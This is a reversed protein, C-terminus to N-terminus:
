TGESQENGKGKSTNKIRLRRNKEYLKHCNKGYRQGPIPPELYCGSCLAGGHKVNKRRGQAKLEIQRAVEPTYSVTERSVHDSM